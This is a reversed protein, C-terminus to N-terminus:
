TILVWRRKRVMDGYIAAEYAKIGAIAKKIRKTALSGSRIM